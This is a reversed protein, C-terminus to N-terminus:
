EVGVDGFQVQVTGGHLLVAFPNGDGVGVVVAVEPTIDVVLTDSTVIPGSLYARSFLNPKSQTGKSLCGTRLPVSSSRVWPSGDQTRRRKVWGRGFLAFSAGCRGTTSTAAAPRGPSRPM